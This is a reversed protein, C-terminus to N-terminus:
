AAIPPEPNRLFYFGFDRTERKSIFNPDKDITEFYSERLKKGGKSFDFGFCTIEEYRLAYRSDYNWIVSGYKKLCGIGMSYQEQCMEAFSPDINVLIDFMETLVMSELEENINETQNVEPM